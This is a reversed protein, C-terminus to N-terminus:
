IAIRHTEDGLDVGPFNGQEQNLNVLKWGFLAGFMQACVGELVTASHERSKLRASLENLRDSLQNIASEQTM